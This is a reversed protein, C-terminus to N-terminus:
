TTNSKEALWKVPKHFHHQTRPIKKSMENLRIDLPEQSTSLKTQEADEDATHADIPAVAPPNPDPYAKMPKSQLTVSFNEPNDTKSDFKFIKM